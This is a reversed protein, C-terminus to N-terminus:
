RDNKRGNMSITVQKPVACFENRGIIYSQKPPHTDVQSVYIKNQKFSNAALELIANYKDKGGAFNIISSDTKEAILAYNGKNLATCLHILFNSCCKYTINQEGFSTIFM